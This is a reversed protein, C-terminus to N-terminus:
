LLQPTKTFTKPSGRKGLVAQKSSKLGVRVTKKFSDAAGRWEAGGNETGDVVSQWMSRRLQSTGATVASPVYGWLDM